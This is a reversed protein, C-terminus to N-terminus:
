VFFNVSEIPTKYLKMVAAMDNDKVESDQEWEAKAKEILEKM